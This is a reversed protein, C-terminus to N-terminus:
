EDFTRNGYLQSSMGETSESKPPVLGDEIAVNQEAELPPCGTYDPDYGKMYEKPMTSVPRACWTRMMPDKKDLLVGTEFMSLIMLEAEHETDYLPSIILNCGDATDALVHYQKGEMIEIGVYAYEINLMHLASITGSSYYTYTRCLVNM